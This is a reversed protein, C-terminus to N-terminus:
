RVPRSELEYARVLSREADAYAGIRAQCVGQTMLSRSLGPISAHRDGAPVAGAGRYAGTRALFWGYNHMIDPDRPSLQLARKYNNRPWRHRAWAKTSSGACTTPTPAADPSSRWRSSQGRRTRDRVPRPQLLGLGAGHARAARRDTPRTPSPPSSRPPPEAPPSTKCASMVAAAALASIALALRTRSESTAGRYRWRDIARAGRRSLRCWHSRAVRWRQASTHADRVEGALQGCAAAIRHRAARAGCPPSSAPVRCCTPLCGDRERPSRRLGSQCISQVSDPQDQVGRPRVGPRVCRGRRSPRFRQRRGLMCYEFTIFDRPAADLYRNCADLLEAIPYKRNLPVLQTACRTTRRTCRRGRAGGPCDERLRDIM